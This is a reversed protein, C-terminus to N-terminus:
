NLRKYSTKEYGEYITMIVEDKNTEFRIFGDVGMYFTKTSSLPIVQSIATGSVLSLHDRKISLEVSDKADTINQYTGAYEGYQSKDILFEVHDTPLKLASAIEKFAKIAMFRYEVIARRHTLVGEIIFRKVKNKYRFDNLMYNIQEDSRRKSYWEFNKEYDDLNKYVLKKVVENYEYVWPKTYNHLSDLYSIALDYDQPIIDRNESLLSYNGDSIDYNFYGTVIRWLRYNKSKVYDEYTVKNNFVLNSLSDYERYNKILETGQIIDSELEKAVNKLIINVKEVAQKQESRKNLSLAILIGIIVLLIEGIAYILYKSFKNESLLRQRIKRFFKIM